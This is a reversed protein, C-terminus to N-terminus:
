KEDLSEIMQIDQDLNRNRVVLSGIYLAVILSVAGLGLILYGFTDPSATEFM